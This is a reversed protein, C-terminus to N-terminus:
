RRLPEAVAADEGYQGVEARRGALGHRPRALIDTVPRGPPAATFNIALSAVAGSLVVAATPSYGRRGLAEIADRQLRIGAAGRPFLSQLYQARGPHELVYARLQQAFSLLHGKV